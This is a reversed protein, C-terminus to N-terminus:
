LDLTSFWKAGTLMDLTNDIWPLPFCDKKTFGNLKRYDMSFRLDGNKKRTLVIPSSWLSNSEEIVGCRQMDELMESVGM